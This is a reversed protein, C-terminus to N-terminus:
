KKVTGEGKEKRLAFTKKRATKQERKEDKVGKKEKAESGLGEPRRREQVQTAPLTM